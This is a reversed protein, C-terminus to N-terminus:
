ACQLVTPNADKRSLCLAGLVGRLALLLSRGILRHKWCNRWIFNARRMRSERTAVIPAAGVQDLQDLLSVTQERMLFFSVTCRNGRDRLPTGPRSWTSTALKRAPPVAFSCNPAGVGFSLSAPQQLLGNTLSSTQKTAAVFASKDTSLATQNSKLGDMARPKTWKTMAKGPSPSMTATVRASYRAASADSPSNALAM